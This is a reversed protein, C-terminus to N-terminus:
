DLGALSAVREMSARVSATDLGGYRFNLSLDTVGMRELWALQAAVHGDDGLLSGSTIQETPVDSAPETGSVDVLAARVRQTGAMLRNTIRYMLRGAAAAREVEAPDASVHALVQAGFRVSGAALGRRDREEAFAAVSQEVFARGRVGVAIFPFLGRGLATGISQPSGCAYWAPPHPRQVPAPTVTVAPFPWRGDLNAVDPGSWLQ